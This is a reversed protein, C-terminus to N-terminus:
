SDFDSFNKFIDRWNFFFDLLVTNKRNVIRNVSFWYLTWADRWKFRNDEVMFFFCEVAVWFQMRFYCNSVSEVFRISKTLLITSRSVRTMLNFLFFIGEWKWRTLFWFRPLKYSEKRERRKNLGVRWLELNFM